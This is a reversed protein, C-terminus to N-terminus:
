RPEEKSKELARHLAELDSTLKEVKLRGTEAEKRARELEAHVSSSDASFAARAEAQALRERARRLEADLESLRKELLGDIRLAREAEEARAEASRLKALLEPPASPSLPATPPAPAAPAPPELAGEEALASELEYGLRRPLQRALKRLSERIEEWREPEM